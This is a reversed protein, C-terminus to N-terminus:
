QDYEAEPLYGPDLAAQQALFEPDPAFPPRSEARRYPGAEEILRAYAREVLEEPAIGIVESIDSLIKPPISRKGTAYKSLTAPYSCIEEAVQAATFGRSRIAGAVEQGLLVSFREGREEIDM